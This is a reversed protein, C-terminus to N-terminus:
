ALLQHEAAFLAAGARTSLGTKGYISEVHHGVTKPAIVLEAAIQRNTKGRALLRLVEVERDSLGAPWAERVRVPRAGAAELVANVARQDLRGSEVDLRLEARARAPELRPRYPREHTMADYADAAALLRAEPTLQSASVGRHYGSGDLREHHGSATAASTAFSSARALIRETFYPHLRVREHESHDLPSAKEWIGNPVGLRGLDHLLGARRVGVVEVPSLGLREAGAAALEAVAQSHGMLFPAKLDTFDAFARAVGDLEADRVVRRPEPEAALVREWADGSDPDALLPEPDSFLADCVTPDYASGRRHRITELASSVTELRAITVADHAVIVIRQALSLDDGAAGSPVGKGDWREYYHGLGVRVGESMGLRDALRAAGECQLAVIREFRGEGKLVGAAFLRAREARPREEGVHRALHRVFEGTSAHTLAIARSRFALEDGGNWVAMESATASCGVHELLALYYVDSLVAAECGVRRGLELALLCYRLVQELPQGMGLDTALSLSTMLDALRVDQAPVSV